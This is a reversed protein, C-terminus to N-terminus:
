LGLRGPLRWEKLIIVRQSNHEVIDGGGDGGSDLSTESLCNSHGSESEEFILPRHQPAVTVGPSM